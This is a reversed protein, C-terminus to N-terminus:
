VFMEMILSRGIAEYLLANPRVTGHARTAARVLANALELALAGTGADVLAIPAPPGEGHLDPGDELGAVDRENKGGGLTASGGHQIASIKALSDNILCHRM